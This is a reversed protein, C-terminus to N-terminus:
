TALSPSPNPAFAYWMMWPFAMWWSGPTAWMQKISDKTKEVQEKDWFPTLFPYVFPKSPANPTAAEVPGVKERELQTLKGADRPKVSVFDAAALSLVLALLLCRM